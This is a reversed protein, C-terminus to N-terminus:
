HRHHSEAQPCAHTRRSWMVWPQLDRIGSLGCPSLAEFLVSGHPNPSALNDTGLAVSPDLRRQLQHFMAIGCAEGLCLVFYLTHLMAFAGADIELRPGASSTKSICM